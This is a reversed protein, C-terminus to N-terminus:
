RRHHHHKPRAKEARVPGRHPWLRHPVLFTMGGFGQWQTSTATLGHDFGADLVINPRVSYSGAILLGAANSHMSPAANTTSTVFPQTFHWLETIIEFKSSVLQHSVSFSQGYQARRVADQTQEALIVNADYHFKGFDGSVLLLGSQLFAGIDLDTASGSRVRRNYGLAVTPLLGSENTLLVQAGIILDGTQVASDPGFRSGVVPQSVFQFMLRPHVALKTTQSLGTQSALGPTAHAEVFGQELQVYGVPPIHAPNTVTPRAPNAEPTEPDGPKATSLTNDVQVPTQGYAGTAFSAALLGVAAYKGIMLELFADGSKDEASAGM